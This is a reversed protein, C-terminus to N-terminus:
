IITIPTPPRPAARGKENRLGCRRIAAARAAIARREARLCKDRFEM